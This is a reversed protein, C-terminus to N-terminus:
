LVFVKPWGEADKAHESIVVAFRPEAFAVFSLGRKRELEAFVVNEGVLCLRALKPYM